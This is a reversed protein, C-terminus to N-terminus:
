RGHFEPKEKALFARVANQHDETVGLRAQADAEESLADALSVHRGHALARKAETFAMTPGDALRGALETATALVQEAPVLRGALGWEAAQQATFPEGLLVLESALSAGVTRALTTSLGSDPALGIGTFATGFKAVDASVRLDCALAFGLGAGFCHGNIAAVVPKAMTALTSVIPNYHLGVTDFSSAPDEALAEAHEGLDQGVCFSRGAGTLVVARVSDDDALDYLADRLEEKLQKTLSNAKDPRNMTVTVVADTRSILITQAASEDVM